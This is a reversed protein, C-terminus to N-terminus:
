REGARSLSTSPCKAKECFRKELFQWEAISGNTRRRSSRTKRLTGGSGQKANRGKRSEASSERWASGRVRHARAPGSIGCRCLAGRRRTRSLHAKGPRGLFEGLLLSSSVSGLLVEPVPSRNARRRRASEAPFR